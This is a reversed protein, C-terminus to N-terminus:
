SFTAAFRGFYFPAYAPEQLTEAETAAVSEIMGVLALSRSWLSDLNIYEDKRHLNGGIPGLGDLCINYPTSFYNIDAAGKSHTAPAPKGELLKLHSNYLDILWKNEASSAMPPCDDHVKFSKTCKGIGLNKVHDAELLEQFKEHLNERGEFCSFRMDIKAKLEDCIVNFSDNVSQVSNVNISINENDLHYQHLEKAIHSFEHIANLANRGQRGSHGGEGIVQLEYWRNGNRSRIISGDSLAPEFGLVIDSNLAVRKFIHHLGPSGMEESPSIVVKITLNEFISEPLYELTSLILAVGGKNDAIGPGILHDGQIKTNLPDPSLVTDVHGLLTITKSGRGKSAILLPGYESCEGQEFQVLYGQTTLHSGLFKQASEIEDRNQTQTDFQSLEAIWSNARTILDLRKNQELNEFNM